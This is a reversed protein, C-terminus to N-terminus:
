LQKPDNAVLGRGRVTGKSELDLFRKLDEASGEAQGSPSQGHLYYGHLYSDFMFISINSISCLDTFEQISTPMWTSVM